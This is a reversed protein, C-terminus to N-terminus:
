TTRGKLSKKKPSVWAGLRLKRMVGVRCVILIEAEIRSSSELYCLGTFTFTVRGQRQSGCPSYLGHFEGPWFVPTPLKAM